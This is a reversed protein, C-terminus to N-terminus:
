LTPTENGDSIEIQCNTAWYMDDENLKLYFKGEREVVTNRINFGNYVYKVKGLPKFALPTDHIESNM